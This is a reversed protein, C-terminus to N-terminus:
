HELRALIKAFSPDDKNYGRASGRFHGDSLSLTEISAVHFLRWGVATGVTQWGSLSYHGRRDFGFIHPNVTREVGNYHFVLKWREAIAKRIMEHIATDANQMM